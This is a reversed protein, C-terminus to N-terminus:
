RASGMVTCRAMVPTRSWCGTRGESSRHRLRIGRDISERYPGPEGPVHGSALFSMVALSTVSTARGFGADWGGDAKQSEKLYVLARRISEDSPMSGAAKQALAPRAIALFLLALTAGILTRIM